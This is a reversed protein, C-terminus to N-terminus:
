KSTCGISAVASSVCSGTTWSRDTCSPAAWPRAEWGTCGATRGRDQLCLTRSSPLRLNLSVALAWIDLIGTYFGLGWPHPTPQIPGKPPSSIKLTSGEGAWGRDAVHPSLSFLAMSLGPLLNERSM